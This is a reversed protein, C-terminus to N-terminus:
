QIYIKKKIIEYIQDSIQEVTIIKGSFVSYINKSVERIESTRSDDNNKKVVRISFFSGVLESKKLVPLYDESKKITKLYNSKHIKKNRLYIPIKKCIKTFIQSYKVHALYYYDKTNAVPLISPFNGDIITAGFRPYNKIQLVLMEQLNYEYTERLETKILDNINEYTCNIVFDYNDYYNNSNNKLTIKSNHSINKIENNYFVKIKKNKQIKNLIFNLLKKTDYVGENVHFVQEIKEKNFFNSYLKKKYKLKFKKLFKEYDKATTKSHESSVAYYNKFDFDLFNKYKKEFLVKSKLCQIVTESSRPYHFGYHHRNHNYVTANLNSNSNKEFIDIEEALSSLKEAIVLGFIGSGIVAIKRKM